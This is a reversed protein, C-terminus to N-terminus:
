VYFWTPFNVDDKLRKRITVDSLGIESVASRLSKYVTGDISIKKSKIDSILKRHEESIQNGKNGVSIALRHAESLTKGTKSRSLAAKHEETLARGRKSKSLNEKHSDSLPRGRIVDLAKELNKVRTERPIFPRLGDMPNLSNASVNCCFRTGIYRDLLEQEKERAEDFSKTPYTEIKIDLWDTYVEQLKKNAHFGKLLESRHRRLRKDLNVTSGVYFMGSPIHTLIYYGTQAM